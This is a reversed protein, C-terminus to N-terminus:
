HNETWDTTGCGSGLLVGGMRGLLWVSPVLMLLNTPNTLNTTVEEGAEELGRLAGRMKWGHFRLLGHDIGVEGRLVGNGSDLGGWFFDGGKATGETTGLTETTGQGSGFLVRIGGGGGGHGFGGADVFPEPGGPKEFGPADGRFHAGHAFDFAGAVGELGAGGWVGTIEELNREGFSGAQPGDPHQGDKLFPDASRFGALRVLFEGWRFGEFGLFVPVAGTEFVGAASGGFFVAAIEIFNVAEPVSVCCWRDERGSGM